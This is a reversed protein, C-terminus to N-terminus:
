NWISSGYNFTFSTPLISPTWCLSSEVSSKLSWSNLNNARKLTQAHDWRLRIEQLVQRVYRLHKLNLEIWHSRLNQIDNFADPSAKALKRTLSQSQRHASDQHRVFYEIDTDVQYAQSKLFPILIQYARPYKTIYEIFECYNGTLYPLESQVPSEGSWISIHPNRVLLQPIPDGLAEGASLPGKQQLVLGKPVIAGDATRAYHDLPFNAAPELIPEPEEIFSSVDFEPLFNPGSLVLLPEFEVTPSPLPERLEPVGLSLPVSVEEFDSNSDISIPSSESGSSSSVRLATLSLQLSTEPTFYVSQALEPVQDSSEPSADSRERSSAPLCQILDSLVTDEELIEHNDILRGILEGVRPSFNGNNYQSPGSIEINVNGINRYKGHIISVCDTASYSGKAQKQHIFQTFIKHGPYGSPSAHRFAGQLSIDLAHHFFVSQYIQLQDEVPNKLIDLFAPLPNQVQDLLPNLAEINPLTSLPATIAEWNVTTAATGTSSM